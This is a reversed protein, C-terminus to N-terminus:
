VRKQRCVRDSAYVLDFLGLVTVSIGIAPGNILGILPKRHDIYAEVYNRCFSKLSINKKLFNKIHVTATNTVRKGAKGQRWNKGYFKWSRQREFFLRRARFLWTLHPSTVESEYLNTYLRSLKVFILLWKLCSICWLIKHSDIKFVKNECSFM